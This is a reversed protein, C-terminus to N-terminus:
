LLGAIIVLLLLLLFRGRLTGAMLLLQCARQGVRVAIAGLLPLADEGCLGLEQRGYAAGVADEFVVVMRAPLTLILGLLASRVALQDLLRIPLAGFPLM